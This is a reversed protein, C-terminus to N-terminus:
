HREISGVTDAPRYYQNANQAAQVAAPNNFYLM